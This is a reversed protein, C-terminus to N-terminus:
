ASDEGCQPEPKLCSEHGPNGKPQVAGEAEIRDALQEWSDAIELIGTRLDPIVYVEARARLEAAKARFSVAQKARGEM